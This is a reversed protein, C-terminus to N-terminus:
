IDGCSFCSAVELPCYDASSAIAYTTWMDARLHCTM